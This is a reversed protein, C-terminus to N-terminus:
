GSQFKHHQVMLDEAVLDGYTWATISPCISLVLMHSGCYWLKRSSKIQLEETVYQYGVKGTNLPEIEQSTQWNRGQVDKFCLYLLAAESGSKLNACLEQLILHRSIKAEKRISSRFLGTSWGQRGVQVKYWRYCVAGKWTTPHFLPSTQEKMSLIGEPM